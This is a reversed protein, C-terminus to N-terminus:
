YPNIQNKQFFFKVVLFLPSTAITAIFDFKKKRIFNSFNGSKGLFFIKFFDNKDGSDGSRWKGRPRCLGSDDGSFCNSEPHIIAIEM